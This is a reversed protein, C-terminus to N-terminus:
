PAVPRLEFVQGYKSAAALDGARLAEKAAELKRADELSYSPSLGGEEYILEVEVKVVYMGDGDRVLETITRGMVEQRTM